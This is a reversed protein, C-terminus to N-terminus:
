SPPCPVAPCPSQDSRGPRVEDASEFLAGDSDQFSMMSVRYTARLRRRETDVMCWLRGGDVTPGYVKSVGPFAEVRADILTPQPQHAAKGAAQECAGITGDTTHVAAGIVFVAGVLAAVSVLLAARRRGM